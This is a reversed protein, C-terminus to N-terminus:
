APSEDEGDSRLWFDDPLPEDFDDHLVIAGPHLGLVRPASTPAIPVLRVLPTDQDTLVVDTGQLVLQILEVLHAPAEQISITRTPNM